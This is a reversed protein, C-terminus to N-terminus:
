AVVDTQAAPTLGEPPEQPAPARLRERLYHVWAPRLLWLAGGYVAAGVLGGALLVAVPGDILRDLVWLVGALGAAALLSPWIEHLIPRLGVDLLRAALGIGVVAAIGAVVAQCAAVATIGLDTFLFLGTFLLALEGITLKVLVWARGTAKYAVGAPLGITVALAYFTLVQMPVVSDGWQDGFSVLVFPEALIALAAALPFGLVLTYRLSILFARGLSGPEVETFAPFLVRGAVLPIGLVILQPLRFGLTYFGLATPGLVRGIFLYDVNSQVADLV